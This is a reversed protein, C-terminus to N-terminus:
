ALLRLCWSGDTQKARPVVRCLLILKDLVPSSALYIGHSVTPM